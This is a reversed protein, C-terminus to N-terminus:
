GQVVPVSFQSAPAAAAPAKYAAIAKAFQRSLTYGVTLFAAAKIMLPYLPNSPDITGDNTAKLFVESLGLLLGPLAGALTM